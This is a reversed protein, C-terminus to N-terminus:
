WALATTHSGTYLVCRLQQREEVRLLRSWRALEGGGAGANALFVELDDWEGGERHPTWRALRDDGDNESPQTWYAPPLHSSKPDKFAAPAAVAATRLLAANLARRLTFAERASTEGLCRRAADLNTSRLESSAWPSEDVLTVPALTVTPFTDHADRLATPVFAPTEPDLVSALEAYGDGHSRKSGGRAAAVLLAGVRRGVVEVNRADFPDFSARAGGDSFDGNLFADAAAAAASPPPTWGNPCRAFAAMVWQAVCGTKRKARADGVRVGGLGLGLEVTVDFAGGPPVYVPPRGEFPPADDSAHRILEPYDCRARFVGPLHPAATIALLLVGDPTDNTLTMTRTATTNDDTWAALLPDPSGPPPKAAGAAAAAYSFSKGARGAADAGDDGRMRRGGGGEEPRTSSAVVLRQLGFDLSATGGFSVRGSSPGCMSASPDVLADRVVRELRKKAFFARYGDPPAGRLPAPAIAAIASSRPARRAEVRTAVAASREAGFVGKSSADLVDSVIAFALACRPVERPARIPEGRVFARRMERLRADVARRVAARADPGPPPLPSASDAAALLLAPHPRLEDCADFVRARALAEYQEELSRTADHHHDGFGPPPPRHGLGLGIRPPAIAAGYAYPPDGPPPVPPPVSGWGPPVGYM